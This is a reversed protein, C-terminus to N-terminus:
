LLKLGKPVIVLFEIIQHQQDICRQDDYTTMPLASMTMHLAPIPPGTSTAVISPRM